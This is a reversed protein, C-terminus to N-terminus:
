PLKRSFYQSFFDGTLVDWMVIMKVPLIKDAQAKRIRGYPPRFLNTEIGLCEACQAINLLYMEDSTNWGNLHNHTHNGVSHGESIIKEFIEPYKRVNDGICFFTAKAHHSELTDLVFETVEPIPGDDFTLYIVKANASMRWLFKPYIARLWFPSTHLFLNM